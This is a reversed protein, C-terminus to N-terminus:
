WKPCLKTTARYSEPTDIKYNKEAIKKNIHAFLPNVKKQIEKFQKDMIQQARTSDYVVQSQLLDVAERLEKEIDQRFFKMAQQSVAVHYNEHEKIVKYNCSNTPYKKDILVLIEDYGIEFNIKSIGVCFKNKGQREAYTEGNMKLELNTITLGLTNPSVPSKSFRSFENRSYNHNYVVKGPNATINITVPRKPCFANANQTLFLCLLILILKKM